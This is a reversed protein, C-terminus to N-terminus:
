GEILPSVFTGMEARSKRLTFQLLIRFQKNITGINQICKYERQRFLKRVNTM